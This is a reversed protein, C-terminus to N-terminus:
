SRHQAIFDFFRSSFQATLKPVLELLHQQNYKCTDAAADLFAALDQNCLDKVVAVIREMRDQHNDITDFSEDILHDFTKFGLNRLDRYFGTSTACIWPHGITLPKAIKETRFSYPYDFITETVLSFYTDIYPEPQLYIEGWEKNFLDRKIFSHGVQQEFQNDRYRNVEYCEPLPQIPTTTALLNVGNEELKFHRTFADKGELVTWLARELLQEQQLRHWLFKRHPRARGNLFLFAYPKQKKAFLQDVQRMASLNEQYDLITTLFWEHLLYPYQTEMDGGSILLIKKDIVLREMDYVRLQRVLTESGEASNDFIVVYAPDVALEKVVSLNETLQNRGFIYISNPTLTHQAFRYFDDDVWPKLYRYVESFADVILNRNNLMISANM